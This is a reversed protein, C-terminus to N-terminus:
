LIDRIATLAQEFSAPTTARQHTNHYDFFVISTKALAIETQDSLREVRYYLDFGIRTLDDIVMTIILQDGLFAERRFQIQADALIIGPILASGTETHQLHSLFRVRAEHLLGLLAQNALHNGYNLDTVRVEMQTSFDAGPPLTLKLRPM